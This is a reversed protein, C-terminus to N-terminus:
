VVVSDRDLWNDRVHKSSFFDIKTLGRSIPGMSFKVSTFALRLEIGNSKGKLSNTNETISEVKM